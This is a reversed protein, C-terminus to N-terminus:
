PSGWPMATQVMPRVYRPVWFRYREVLAPRIELRALLEPTLHAEGSLVRRAQTKSLGLLAALAALSVRREECATRLAWARRDREEAFSVVEGRVPGRCPKATTGDVQRAAASERRLAHAM